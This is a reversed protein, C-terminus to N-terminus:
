LRELKIHTANEELLAVVDAAVVVVDPDEPALRVAVERRIRSRHAMVQDPEGPRVVRTDEVWGAEGATLPKSPVAVHPIGHVKDGERICIARQARRLLGRDLAECFC